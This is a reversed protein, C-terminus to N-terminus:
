ARDRSCADAVFLLRDLPAMKGDGLTHKRVASLLETDTYGLKRALHESLHAHALAPNHAEIGKLDPVKVRHRRAFAPM